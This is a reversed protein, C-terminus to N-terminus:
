MKIVALNIKQRPVEGSAHRPYIALALLAKGHFACFVNFKFGGSM